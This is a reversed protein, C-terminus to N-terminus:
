MIVSSPYSYTFTPQQRRFNSGKNVEMGGRGGDMKEKRRKKHKILVFYVDMLLLMQAANIYSVNMSICIRFWSSMKMKLEGEKTSLGIDSSMKMTITM